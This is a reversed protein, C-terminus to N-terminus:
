PTTGQVRSTSSTLPITLHAPRWSMWEPLVRQLTLTSCTVPRIRSYGGQHKRQTDLEHGADSFMMDSDWIATVRSGSAM